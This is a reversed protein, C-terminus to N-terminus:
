WGPLKKYQNIAEEYTTPTSDLIFDGEFSVKVDKTTRKLDDDMEGHGGVRGDSVATLASILKETEDQSDTEKVGVHGKLKWEVKTNDVDISKDFRFAAAAGYITQVVIHTAEDDHFLHDFPSHSGEGTLLSMDLRRLEVEAYYDLSISIADMNKKKNREFSAKGRGSLGSLLSAKTQGSLERKSKHKDLSNQDSISSSSSAKPETIICDKLREQNWPSLPLLKDSRNDYLLGPTFHRMMCAIELTGTEDAMKGVQLCIVYSIKDDSM